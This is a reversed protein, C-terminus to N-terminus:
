KVTIIGLRYLNLAQVIVHNIDEIPLNIRPNLRFIKMRTRKGQELQPHKLRKGEVFLIYPQMTKKEKWLYCFVKKRYTFCPMGYKRTEVVEPDSKLIINRITLLCSKQPEDHSLYYNDYEM